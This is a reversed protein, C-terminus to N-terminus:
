TKNLINKSAVLQRAPLSLKNQKLDKARNNLSTPSNPNVEVQASEHMQAGLVCMFCGKRICTVYTGYRLLCSLKLLYANLSLRKAHLIKWGCSTCLWSLVHLFSLVQCGFNPTLERNWNCVLLMIQKVVPIFTLIRCRHSINSKAFGM